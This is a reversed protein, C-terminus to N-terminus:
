LKGSHCATFSFKKAGQVALNVVTCEFVSIFNGNLKSDNDDHDDSNNQNSYFLASSTFLM